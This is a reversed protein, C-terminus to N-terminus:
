GNSAEIGKEQVGKNKELRGEEKNHKREQSNVITRENRKQIKRRQYKRQMM